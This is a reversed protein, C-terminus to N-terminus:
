VLASLCCQICLVIYVNYVSVTNTIVLDDKEADYYRFFYLKM